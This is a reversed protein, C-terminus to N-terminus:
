SPPKKVVGMEQLKEVALKMIATGRALKAEYEPTGVGEHNIQMGIGTVRYHLEEPPPAAHFCQWHIPGSVPGEVHLVVDGTDLLQECAICHDPFAARDETM